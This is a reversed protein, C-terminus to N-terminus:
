WPEASLQGCIEGSQTWVVQGPAALAPVSCALAM